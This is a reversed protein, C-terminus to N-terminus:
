QHAVLEQNRESTDALNVFQLEKSALEKDAKFPIM